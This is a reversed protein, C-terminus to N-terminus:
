KGIKNIIGESSCNIGDQLRQISCEKKKGHKLDFQLVNMADCAYNM